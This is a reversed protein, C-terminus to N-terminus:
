NCLSWEIFFVVAPLSCVCQDLSAQRASAHTNSHFVLRSASFLSHPIRFASSHKVRFSSSGQCAVCLLRCCSWLCLRVSGPEGPTCFCAYELPLRTRLASYPIRFASHPIRPISLASAPHDRVRSASFVVALGSCVCQDLSAQRASAHSNSHFVLRSVGFLSHPIRFASHPPISLASAPHDRVRSASFVVAPLSCVCQDLSAQRASAHSNSHFVPRSASFLSHPIRFASHLSISLASAPHDRVPSASFVVALGSCSASIWARKAHLHMRIRTSSPHSVSFLSHPIPFASHPPISLASAPHDRLPSALLRCCSRSCVCQDLSAQRASAHSNSHFVPALRRIPFASHPIRFASFHKVRFSSSGQCAIRLLRCCSLALRVSGPESPTCFCAFELPLRARPAQIPFASHPIRFALPISLASAPHDRVRSASFVVALGSCSASIWARITGCERNGTGSLRPFQVEIKRGHLRDFPLGDLFM